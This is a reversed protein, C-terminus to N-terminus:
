RGFVEVRVAGAVLAQYLPDDTSLCMQVFAVSHELMVAGQADYVRVGSNQHVTSRGLLQRVIAALLEERTPIVV